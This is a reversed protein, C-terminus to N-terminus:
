RGDVLNTTDYHGGDEEQHNIGYPKTLTEHNKEPYRDNYNNKHDKQHRLGFPNVNSSTAFM